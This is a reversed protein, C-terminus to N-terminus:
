LRKRVCRVDAHSDGKLEFCVVGITKVLIVSDIRADTRMEVRSSIILSIERSGILLPNIVIIIDM